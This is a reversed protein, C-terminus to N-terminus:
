NNIPKIKDVIFEYLYDAIIENAKPKLHGYDYFYDYDFTFQEQFLRQRLDFVYVNSSGLNSLSRLFEYVESKGRLDGTFIESDKAKVLYEIMQSYDEEQLGLEYYKQTIRYIGCPKAKLNDLCTVFVLATNKREVYNILKLINAKFDEIILQNYKKFPESDIRVLGLRQMFNILSPEVYAVLFWDGYSVLTKWGPIKDLCKWSFLKKLFGSKIFYYGEKINAARYALEYDVGGEYYFIALDPKKYDVTLEIIEKLSYSDAWVMSFNYVRFTKKNTMSNLRSELITPFHLYNAAFLPPKSIIPSSGYVYIIYDDPSHNFNIGRRFSGTSDDKYIITIKNDKGELSVDARKSDYYSKLKQYIKSHDIHNNIRNISLGINSILVILFFLPILIVFYFLTTKCREILNM